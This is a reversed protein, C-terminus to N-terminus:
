INELARGLAVAAVRTKRIDNVLNSFFSTGSEGKYKLSAYIRMSAFDPSPYRLAQYLGNMSLGNDIRFRQLLEPAHDDTTYREFFNNLTDQDPYKIRFRSCLDGINHQKDITESPDVLIFGKVLLEIGHLLNFLLPIIIRHDSWKTDNFYEEETIEGESFDRAMFWLNGSSATEHAANDVLHLYQFSATWFSLALIYRDNNM